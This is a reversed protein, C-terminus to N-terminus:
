TGTLQAPRGRPDPGALGAPRSRGSGHTPLSRTRTTPVPAPGPWKHHGPWWLHGHPTGVLRLKKRLRFHAWSSSNNGGGNGRLPYRRENTNHRAWSFGRPARRENVVQRTRMAVQPPRPEMGFPHTSLPSAFPYSPLLLKRPHTAYRTATRIGLRRHSDAVGLRQNPSFRHFEPVSPLTRISSLQSNTRM